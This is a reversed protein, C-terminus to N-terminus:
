DDAGGRYERLTFMANARTNSKLWDQEVTGQKTKGLKHGEEFAEQLRSVNALKLDEMERYLDVLRQKHEFESDKIM